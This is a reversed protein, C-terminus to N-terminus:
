VPHTARIGFEEGDPPPSDRAASRDQEEMKLIRSNPLNRNPTSSSSLHQWRRILFDQISQYQNKIIM